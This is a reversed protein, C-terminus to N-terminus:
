HTLRSSQFPTDLEQLINALWICKPVVKMRALWDVIAIINENALM